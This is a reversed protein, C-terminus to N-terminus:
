SNHLFPIITNEFMLIRIIGSFIFGWGGRKDVKRERIKSARPDGRSVPGDEMSHKDGQQKTRGGERSQYNGSIGLCRESM